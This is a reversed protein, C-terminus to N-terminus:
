VNIDWFVIPGDQPTYTLYFQKTAKPVIYVVGGNQQMGAAIPGGVGTSPENPVGSTQEVFNDNGQTDQLSLDGGTFGQQKGSVNKVTESVALFTQDSTMGVFIQQYQPIKTPDIIKASDLTIQWGDSTQASDGVKYHPAPTPTPTIAPQTPAPTATPQTNTTGTGGCAALFVLFLLSFIPLKNKM